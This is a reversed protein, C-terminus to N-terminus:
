QFKMEVFTKLFDVTGDIGLISSNIILDKRERGGWKDDTYFQYYSRRLKDNRLVDKKAESPIDILYKEAVRSVRDEFPAQIFISLVNKYDRLIFDACRGIIVCSEKEALERIVESQKWFLRDNVTGAEYGPHLFPNMLPNAPMEDAKYLAEIKMNSKEAVTDILNKDYFAIGLKEALKQGIELGGSGYERGITIVYNGSM